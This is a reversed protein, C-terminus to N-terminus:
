ARTREVNMVSERATVGDWHLWLSVNGHHKWINVTAPNRRLNTMHVAAQFQQDAAAKNVSFVEYRLAILDYANSHQLKALSRYTILISLVLM